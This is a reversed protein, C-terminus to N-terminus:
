IKRLRLQNHFIDYIPVKSETKKFISICMKAILVIHNIKRLTLRNIGPIGIGFLVSIEGFIIQVDYETLIYQSILTWFPRVVRCAYFFHEIYDTEDSCYSCNRNEKIKMKHLMINTAYINHLIKWQLVRLRTEQTCSRAMKWVDKDMEIGYKNNWFRVTCPETYSSECLTARFDKCTSCKKGHFLPSNSFDVDSRNQEHVKSVFSQVAASVVNYELIRGPSTGIRNCLEQYSCMGNPGYLDSIKFVKGKIWEPFFLVKGQYKIFKNNWLLTSCFLPNDHKNLDLWSKVVTKWFHSHIKELGKFESSRINAYFCSYNEGFSSLLSKPILTWNENVNAKCLRIVWQMLFASQMQKVDIMKLGGQDYESCMVVRKVKEFARRNSHRKRWLFRFFLRNIDTLVKEPIVLAQM